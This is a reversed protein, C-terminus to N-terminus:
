LTAVQSTEIILPLPITYTASDVSECTATIVTAQQLLRRHFDWSIQLQIEVVNYYFSLLFAVWLHFKNFLLPNKLFKGCTTNVILDSSTSLIHTYPDFEFRSLSLKSIFYHLYDFPTVSHLRWKLTAMVRLEM